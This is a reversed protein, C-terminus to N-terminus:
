HHEQTAMGFYLASLLTFVYAQIFSVLVDLLTMFVSFVISVVSVAAGTAPGMLQSFIFILSIFVTVIMHGAMMNAFLRVMLVFPKTFVGSLEVIPMLPIPFKLWWPVDPNYIEKWYHKNASITTIVFTFLALVMTVAINGTVNAGFPFIPILGLLNNILIFFFLTLLFPMFKESKEEGIAPVAVEDRIFIIIPEVLNQIGKPAKGANQKASKAVNLFIWLLVIVSVIIGAVAKTLSLDIPLGIVEGHENIEEIKGANEGDHAIRFNNYTATGHHFRSSWFLHWGSSNSYLIIPLPISIHTEGITAIHWDFADSVHEMVFKGADFEEPQQEVAHEDAAFLKVPSLAIVLSALVLVTLKTLKSLKIPNNEKLM